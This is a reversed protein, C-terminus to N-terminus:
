HAACGPAAASREVAEALSQVQEATRAEPLRQFADMGWDCFAEVAWEQHSGCKPKLLASAGLTDKAVCSLLEFAEQLKNPTLRGNSPEALARFLRELAEELMEDAELAKRRRPQAAGAELGNGTRVEAKKRRTSRGSWLYDIFEEIEIMGSGNRDVEDFLVFLKEDGFSPNLRRFLICIEKYSLLGDSDRDLEAFQKKLDDKREDDVGTAKPRALKPPM